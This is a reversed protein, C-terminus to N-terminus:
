CTKFLFAHATLKKLFSPGPTVYTVLAVDSCILGPSRKRACALYASLRIHSRGFRPGGCRCVDAVNEVVSTVIRCRSCKGFVYKELDAGRCSGNLALELFTEDFKHNRPQAYYMYTCIHKSNNSNQKPYFIANIAGVM